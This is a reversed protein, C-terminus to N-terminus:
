ELFEKITFKMKSAKKGELLKKPLTLSVQNTKKNVFLTRIITKVM